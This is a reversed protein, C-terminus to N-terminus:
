KLKSSIVESISFLLHTVAAAEKTFQYKTLRIMKGHRDEDRPRYVEGIINDFM